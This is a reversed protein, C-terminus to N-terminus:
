EPLQSSRGAPTSRESSEIAGMTDATAGNRVDPDSASPTDGPQTAPQTPPPEVQVTPDIGADLAKWVAAPDDTAVTVEPGALEFRDARVTWRPAGSWLLAAGLVVGLGAVAFLYPWATSTLAYQDILSVERIKTRVADATPRLRLSGVVIQAIGALALLVAVIRRGRAKLTLVLLTGALVVVAVAQSLGGTSATGTFSVSTGVGAARWWPQASGVVALLGAALLVAFTLPRSRALRSPQDQGPGTSRQDPETL